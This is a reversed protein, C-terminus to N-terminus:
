NLDHPLLISAVKRTARMKAETPLGRVARTFSAHLERLNRPSGNGAYCDTWKKPNEGGCARILRTMADADGSLLQAHVPAFFNRAVHPFFRPALAGQQFVDFIRLKAEEDTIVRQAAADTVEVFRRTHEVYREIAEELEAELRLGVTHKRKLCILDAHLDLNGCVSVHAGAGIQISVRGDNGSKGALAFAQGPRRYDLLDRGLGTRKPTIIGGFFLRLGDRGTVLQERGWKLGRASCVRELTEILEIHPVPRHKKGLTAPTPLARLNARTAITDGPNWALVNVRPDNKTRRTM